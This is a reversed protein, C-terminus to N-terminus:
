FSPSYRLGLMVTRPAQAFGTATYYERDFANDLNLQLRLQKSVAWQVDFNFLAYGALARTNAANDWRQGSAQMTGGLHWEGLSTEARLTGFSKARRALQKGTMEDKPSQLDVTATLRLGSLTTGAALNVGQLRAKAVNEYCGFSSNCSGAAGFVILDEIRNRYASASIDFGQADFRLGIEANRGREPDLAQVGPKSLDPGYISGRQYLTPARFANGFSAYLRLGEQLKFGGAITGTDIGGFQSDDDHRGNLQLDFREAKYLWGLGIANEDRKDKGTRLGSNELSDERRELLLSLQQERSLQYYGFLSVNRIETDTLYPFPAPDNFAKTEYRDRSAGASLETRLAESWRANWALRLARNDQISHDDVQPKSSDGDYQGDVHAALAVLELRQGEALNAGLRLSANHNKWGDSDPVYSFTSAPTTANFGDSREGALGIAYDFQKSGGAISADLKYSQLNGVSAGLDLKTQGDGGKRTFIQVVGGIADSGYIASAPGKLIEVREIQALPIAQWSAGGTSQSDIRVGDLLVLTHRNDAGRLFLSTTGAPGGNRVMEASGQNRLLDAVTGFSQREIQERNIVTLDALVDGLRQPTRSATVVVQDLRNNGSPQAAAPLAISLAACALAIPSAVHFVRAARTTRSIM